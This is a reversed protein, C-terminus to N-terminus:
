VSGVTGAPTGNPAVGRRDDVVVAVMGDRDVATDTPHGLLVATSSRRLPRGTVGISVTRVTRGSTGAATAAVWM